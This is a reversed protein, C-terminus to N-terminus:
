CTLLLLLLLTSPYFGWKLFFSLSQFHFNMIKGLFTKKKEQYLVNNPAKM